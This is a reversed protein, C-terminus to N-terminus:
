RQMTLSDETRQILVDVLELQDCNEVIDIMSRHLIFLSQILQSFCRVATRQDYKCILYRWTLDAYRNQIRFVASSDDLVISDFTDFTSFMLLALVLKIFIIDQDVRQNVRRINTLLISGFLTEITQYFAPHDILNSKEVIFCCTFAVLQRIVKHFLRHRDISTLSHFFVNIEFLRRIGDFIQELFDNFISTKFRMKLPLKNQERIMADIQNLQSYEDYSHLLNSLLNWQELTLSSQETPLLQRVSKRQTKKTIHSRFLEVQM